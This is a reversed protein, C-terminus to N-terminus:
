IKLLQGTNRQGQKEPADETEVRDQDQDEESAPRNLDISRKPKRSKREYKHEKSSTEEIIDKKVPKSLNYTEEMYSESLEQMEPSYTLDQETGDDSQSSEVKSMPHQKKEKRTKRIPMEKLNRIAM